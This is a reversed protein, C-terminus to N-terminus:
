ALHRRWGGSYPGPSSCRRCAAALPQEALAADPPAALEGQCHTCGELHAQAEAPAAAPDLLLDPMAAAASKCDFTHKMAPEM